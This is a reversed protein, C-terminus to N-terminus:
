ASRRRLPVALMETRLHEVLLAPAPPLARRVRRWPACPTRSKTTSAASEQRM